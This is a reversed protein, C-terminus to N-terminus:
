VGFLGARPRTRGNRLMFCRRTTRITTQRANTAAAHPLLPLLVVVLPTPPLVPAGAGALGVDNGAADFLLSGQSSAVTGCVMSAALYPGPSTIAARSIGTVFRVPALAHRTSFTEIPISSCVNSGTHPVTTAGSEAPFIETLLWVPLM